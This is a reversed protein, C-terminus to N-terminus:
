GLYESLESANIKIVPFSEITQNNKYLMFNNVNCAANYKDVCIMCPHNQIYYSNIYFYYAFGCIFIFLCVLFFTVFFYFMKKDKPMSMRTEKEIISFSM